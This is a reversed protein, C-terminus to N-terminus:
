RPDDEAQANRQKEVLGYIFEIDKRVPETRPDTYLRSLIPGVIDAAYNGLAYICTKRVDLDRDELIFRELAPLADKSQVRFFGDLLVKRRETQASSLAERLAALSRDSGDDGLKTAILGLSSANTAYGILQQFEEALLAAPVKQLVSEAIFQSRDSDPFLATAALERALASDTCRAAAEVLISYAAANTAAVACQVLAPGAQANTVFDFARLLNDVDSGAGRREQYTNFLLRVADQTGIQALMVGAFERAKASVSDTETNRLVAGLWALHPGPEAQILAQMAKLGDLDRTAICELWRNTFAGISEGFALEHGTQPKADEGSGAKAEIEQGRATTSAEEGHLTTRNRSYVYLGVACGVILLALWISLKFRTGTAM